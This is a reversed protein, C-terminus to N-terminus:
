LSKPNLIQQLYLVFENSKNLVNNVFTRNYAMKYVDCLDDQSLLDCKKDNIKLEFGYSGSIAHIHCFIDFGQKKKNALRIHEPIADIGKLPLFDFNKSDIHQTKVIKAKFSQKQLLALLMSKIKLTNQKKNM